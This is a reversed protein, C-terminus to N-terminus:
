SPLEVKCDWDDEWSVNITGLYYQANVFLSSLCIISILAFKRM